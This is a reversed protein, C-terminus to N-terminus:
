RAPRQEPLSGTGHIPRLEMPGFGDHCVVVGGDPVKEYLDLIRKKKGRLLLRHGADVM